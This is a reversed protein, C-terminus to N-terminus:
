KGWTGKQAAHPEHYCWGYCVGSGSGSRTHAHTETIWIWFVWKKLFFPNTKWQTENSSRPTTLERYTIPCVVFVLIQNM